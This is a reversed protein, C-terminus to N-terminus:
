AMVLGPYFAVMERLWMRLATVEESSAMGIPSQGFRFTSVSTIEETRAWSPQRVGSSESAIRVQHRLGRDRTTLPIVLAMDTRFGCHAASGVVIAPRVGEQEHGIRSGFDVVWLQWPKLKLAPSV